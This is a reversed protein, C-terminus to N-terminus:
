LEDASGISVRRRKYDLEDASDDDARDDMIEDGERMPLPEMCVDAAEDEDDCMSGMMSVEKRREKTLDPLELLFNLSLYPMGLHLRCRVVINDRNRLEFIVVETAITIGYGMAVLKSTSFINRTTNCVFINKWDKYEGVALISMAKGRETLGITGGGAVRNAIYDRDQKCLVAMESSCCTDIFVTPEERESPQGFFHVERDEDEFEMQEDTSKVLMHGEGQWETYKQQEPMPATCDAKRHDLSGCAYCGTYSNNRKSSVDEFHSEDENEDDQFKRKYRNGDSNRDGGGNGVKGSGKEGRGKGGKRGSGRGGNGKGGKGRGGSGRGSGGGKGRAWAAKQRTKKRCHSEDHGNIGCFDCATTAHLQNISLDRSKLLPAKKRNLTMQFKTMHDKVTTLTMDQQLDIMAHLINLSDHQAIAAVLTMKQTNESQAEGLKSLTLVISQLREMGVELDEGELFQFLDFATKADQRRYAAQKTFRTKLRVMLEAARPEREPVADECETVYNERITRVELDTSTMLYAESWCKDERKRFLELDAKYDKRLREIVAVSGVYDPEEPPDLLGLHSRDFGRMRVKFERICEEINDGRIVLVKRNEYKGEATSSAEAVM